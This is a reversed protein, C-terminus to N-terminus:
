RGEEGGKRGKSLRIILINIKKELFVRGSPVLFTKGAIHTDQLGIQCRFNVMM